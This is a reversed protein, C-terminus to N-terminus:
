AHVDGTPDMSYGATLVPHGPRAPQDDEIVLIRLRRANGNARAFQPARQFALASGAEKVRWRRSRPGVKRNRFVSAAAFAREPERLSLRLLGKVSM